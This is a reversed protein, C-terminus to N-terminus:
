AGKCRRVFQLKPRVPRLWSEHVLRPQNHWRLSFSPSTRPDLSEFGNFVYTFTINTSGELARVIALYRSKGAARRNCIENKSRSANLDQRLQKAQARDALQAVSM